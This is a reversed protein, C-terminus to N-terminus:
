PAPPRRTLGDVLVAVIRRNHEPGRGPV